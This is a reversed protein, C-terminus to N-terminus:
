TLLKGQRLGSGNIKKKGHVVLFHFARGEVIIRDLDPSVKLDLTSSIYIYILVSPLRSCAAGYFLPRYTTPLHDAVYVSYIYYINKSQLGEIYDETNFSHGLVPFYPGLQSNFRGLSKLSLPRPWM